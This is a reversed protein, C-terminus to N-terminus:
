SKNALDDGMGVLAIGVNWSMNNSRGKGDDTPTDNDENAQNAGSPDNVEDRKNGDGGEHGTRGDVNSSSLNGGHHANCAKVSTGCGVFDNDVGEFMKWVGFEISRHTKCSEEQKVENSRDAIKRSLLVGASLLCDKENRCESRYKHEQKVGHDTPEDVSVVSLLRQELDKLINGSTLRAWLRASNDLM